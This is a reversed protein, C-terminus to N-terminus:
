SVVGTNRRKSPRLPSFHPVQVSTPSNSFGAYNGRSDHGGPSMAFLPRKQPSAEVEMETSQKTNQVSREVELQHYSREREDREAKLAREAERERKNRIQEKRVHRRRM